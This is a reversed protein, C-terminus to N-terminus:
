KEDDKSMMETDKQQIIVAIKTTPREYEGTCTKVTMELKEMEGLYVNVIRGINRNGRVAGPTQVIVFDDVRVNRKEANWTKRPLLSPFVDRTWRNWVSDFIKQVFEMRYRPNKTQRFTGQPVHYLRREPLIDNPCLYMYSGNDLDNPIPDIPHQNVLNAVEVLCTHLQFPTLVQEGIAKKPALKCSKVLAEACENQHLAALTTFQWEMGKEASFERLKNTDLGKIMEKLEQDAGVLQSGSDSVM